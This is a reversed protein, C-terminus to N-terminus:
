GKKERYDHRVELQNEGNSRLRAMVSRECEDGTTGEIGVPELYVRGGQQVQEYARYVEGRTSRYRRIVILM